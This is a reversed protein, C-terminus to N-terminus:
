VEDSYRETVDLWMNSSESESEKEVVEVVRLKKQDRYGEMDHCPAEAYKGATCGMAADDCYFSVKTGTGGFSGCAILQPPSLNTKVPYRLDLRIIHGGEEKARRQLARLAAQWQSSNHPSGVAGGAGAATHREWVWELTDLGFSEQEAPEFYTLPPTVVIVLLTLFVVRRNISESVQWGVTRQARSCACM